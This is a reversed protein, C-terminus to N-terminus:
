YCPGIWIESHIQHIQFNRTGFIKICLRPYWTKRRFQKTDWYRFNRLFSRRTNTLTQKHKAYVVSGYKLSIHRPFIPFSTSFENHDQFYCYYQYFFFLYFTFVLTLMKTWSAGVSFQSGYYKPYSYFFFYDMFNM